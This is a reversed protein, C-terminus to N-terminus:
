DGVGGTASGNVTVTSGKKIETASVDSTNTLKANVQVTFFKKVITGNSDKVKVCVDYTTTKAPKFTVTANESFAQATTWKSQSTQKYVVQYQYEGMGGQALGNVTIQQGLTINEASITSTNALKPNVKLEFYKKVIKGSGDKVKVCIDYDTANAPKITVTDNTGFDQKTTWKSEAKKKYYVAYTYEGNGLVAKANIIVTGGLVIENESVTSINSYESMFPINNENAYTEAYSGKAGYIILNGCNFFVYRGISIINNPIIISTLNICGRFTNDYIETMNNSLTISTLSYCGVFASEGIEVVSDPIVISTLNECGEFSKQGIYKINNPFQIKTLTICNYFAGNGISTVSNPINVYALNTCSHFAANGITTVSSPITINTLNDCRYFAKLGIYVVNKGNIKDPIIAQSDNGMYRIITVTNDDNVEYQFDGYTLIDAASASVGSTGVFQGVTSFGTGFITVASLAVALVKHLVSNKKKM